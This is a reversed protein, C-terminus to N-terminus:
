AESSWIRFDGLSESMERLLDVWERHRQQYAAAATDDWDASVSVVSSSHSWMSRMQLVNVM